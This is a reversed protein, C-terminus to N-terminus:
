STRTSERMKNENRKFLTTSAFPFLSFNRNWIENLCKFVGECEGVGDMRLRKERTRGFSTSIMAFSSISPFFFFSNRKSRSFPNIESWPCWKMHSSTFPTYNILQRDLRDTPRPMRIKITAVSWEITHQFQRTIDKRKKKERKRERKNESDFPLWLLVRDPHRSVCVCVCMIIIITHDCHLTLVNSKICFRCKEVVRYHLM